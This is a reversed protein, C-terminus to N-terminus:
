CERLAQCVRGVEDDTLEPFCPLSAVHTSAHETVPLTLQAEPTGALVPQQHDPLPYHVATAIGAAALTRQLEARDEAVVVCLHAVFDAEPSGVFRL